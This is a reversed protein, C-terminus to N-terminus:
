LTGVSFMAIIYLKKRMSMSLRLLEPIPIALITVDLIINIAAHAWAFIHFNICTGSHEGDWNTWIYSIPTCNFLCTVTFAIGYALSTALLFYALRRFGQRPFIRLCFCLFSIKTFAVAAFYFVETLWTFKVIRYIKESEVTWIDKGFGDASMFFELIGMPLASLLAVLAFVDDVAFAKGVLICRAIVAIVAAGGSVGTVIPTIHTIDRVPQECMTQTANQAALAQKLTCSTLVCGQISGMLAENNCICTINTPACTNQAQLSSELCQTACAPMQQGLATCALLAFVAGCCGFPRWVRM